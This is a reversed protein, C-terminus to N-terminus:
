LGKLCYWYLQLPGWLGYFLRPLVAARARLIRPHKLMAGFKCPVCWTCVTGNKAGTNIRAKNKLSELGIIQIVFSTPKTTSVSM